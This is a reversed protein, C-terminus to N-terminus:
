VEEEEDFELDDEGLDEDESEESMDEDEYDEYEEEEDEVELSGFEYDEATKDLYNELRKSLSTLVQIEQPM